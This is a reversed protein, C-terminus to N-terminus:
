KRTSESDESFRITNMGWSRHPALLEDAIDILGGADIPYVAIGMSVPLHFTPSNAVASLDLNNLMARINKAIDVAANTDIGPFVGAFQSGRFRCSEVNKGILRSLAAAIIILAEDRVEGDMEDLNDPKIMMLSVPEDKLFAPLREILFAANYLGTLKDQYLRDWMEQVWPANEAILADARRMRGAIINLFSDFLRAGVKPYIKFFDEISKDRRPFRLMECALVARADANRASGILMDLEGFSDGAIYRAIVQERGTELPRTIVVEGDKVIFFAGSNEDKRFVPSGGSFYELSCFEAIKRLSSEDWGEFFRTGSLVNVPNAFNM